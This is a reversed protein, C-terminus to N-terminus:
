HENRCTPDPTDGLMSTKPQNTVSVVKCVYCMNSGRIHAILKLAHHPEKKLPIDDQIAQVKAKWECLCQRM